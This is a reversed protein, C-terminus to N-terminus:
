VHCTVGLYESEDFWMVFRDSLALAKTASIFVCDYPVIYRMGTHPSANTVQLMIPTKSRFM